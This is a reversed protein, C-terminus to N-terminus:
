QCTHNKNRLCGCSRRETKMVTVPLEQQGSLPCYSSTHADDGTAGCKPCKYRRLIPCRVINQEDRLCHSQCFLESEGNRRCFRCDSFSAEQHKRKKEEKKSRLFNKTEEHLLLYYATGDTVIVQSNDFILGNEQKKKSKDSISFTETECMRRVAIEKMDCLIELEKSTEM